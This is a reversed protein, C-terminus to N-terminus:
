KLTYPNSVTGDTNAAFGDKNYVNIVPRIACINHGGTNTMGEVIKNGMAFNFYMNNSSFTSTM